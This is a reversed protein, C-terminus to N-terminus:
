PYISSVCLFSVGAYNGCQYLLLFIDDHLINFVAMKLPSPLFFFPPLPLFFFLCLSLSSTFSIIKIKHVKGPKKGGARM